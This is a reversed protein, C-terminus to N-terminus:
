CEVACYNKCQKEGPCPLTEIDDIAIDSLYGLTTQATIVLDRTVHSIYRRLSVNAMLWRNGHDGSEQWVITKNGSMEVTVTLSGADLGYMHYAFSLSCVNDSISLNRKLAATEATISSDTAEVYLYHGVGNRYTHDYDPGTLSSLTSGTHNIWPSYGVGKVITWGCLGSELTCM